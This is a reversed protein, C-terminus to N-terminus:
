FRVIGSLDINPQTFNANTKTFADRLLDGTADNAQSGTNIVQQTM